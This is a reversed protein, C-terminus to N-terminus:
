KSSAGLVEDQNLKGPSYHEIETRLLDEVKIFIGMAGEIRKLM